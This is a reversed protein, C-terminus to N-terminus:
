SSRTMRLVAEFGFSYKAFIDELAEIPSPGKAPQVPTM